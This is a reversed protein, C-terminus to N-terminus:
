DVSILLATIVFCGSKSVKTPALYGLMEAEPLLQKWHSMLLGAAWINNMAALFCLVALDLVTLGGLAQQWFHRTSV